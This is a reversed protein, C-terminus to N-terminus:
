SKRAGMVVPGAPQQGPAAPTAQAAQPQAPPDVPDQAASTNAFTLLSAACIAVILSFRM